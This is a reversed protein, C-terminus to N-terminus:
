KRRDFEGSFNMEREGFNERMGGKDNPMKGTERNMGGMGNMGGLGNAGGNGINTIISSIEFNEIEEGNIVLTYEEGTKISETSIIVFQCNKKFTCTYIEENGHKIKLM